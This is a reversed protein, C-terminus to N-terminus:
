DWGQKDKKWIVPKAEVYFDDSFDHNFVRFSVAWEDQLLGSIFKSFIGQFSKFSIDVKCIVLYDQDSKCVVEAILNPWRSLIQTPLDNFYQGDVLAVIGSVMEAPLDNGSLQKWKGELKKLSGLVEGDFVVRWPEEASFQIVQYVLVEGASRELFYELEIM